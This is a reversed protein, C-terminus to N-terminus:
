SCPVGWITAANTGVYTHFLYITKFYIFVFSNSSSAYSWDSINQWVWFMVIQKTISIYWNITNQISQATIDRM